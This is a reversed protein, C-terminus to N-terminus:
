QDGAVDRQGTGAGDAQGEAGRVDRPRQGRGIGDGDGARRRDGDRRRRGEGVLHGAVQDHRAGARQGEGRGGIAQGAGRLDVAARQDARRGVDGRRDRQGVAAVHGVVLVGIVRQGLRDAAGARQGLGAGGHQRDARRQAVLPAVLMRAPVKCSAHRTCGGATIWRGEFPVSPEDVSRPGDRIGAAVAEVGGHVAAAGAEDGPLKAVAIAALPPCHHM